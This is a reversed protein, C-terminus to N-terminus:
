KDRLENFDQRYRDLEELYEAKFSGSDAYRFKKKLAEGVVYLTLAKDFHAPLEINDGSAVDSPRETYYITITETTVSSPIPYVGVKGGWQYWYRPTGINKINHGLGGVESPVLGVEIGSADTYVVRVIDIYNSVISYEHTSAVLSIDATGELCRSRAAIDIQGDNLWVLLEADSWTDATSEQLYSRVNTIITGATTSSTQQSGAFAISSLTYSLLFAICFSVFFSVTFIIISRKM